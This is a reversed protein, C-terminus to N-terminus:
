YRTEKIQTTYVPMKAKKLARRMKGAARIVKSGNDYFYVKKGRTAKMWKYSATTLNMYVRKHYQPYYRKQYYTRVKPYYRKTSGWQSYNYRFNRFREAKAYERRPYLTAFVSPVPNGQMMQKGRNYWSTLPNLQDPEEIGFLVSLFPNLREKAQGMPDCMIQFFDMVSSGTKVILRSTPDDANNGALYFRINGTLASYMLYDSHKVDDWTYNEQDNYSLELIDMQAKLMDPNKVMGYNIYYMFNNIPFTSFWFFQELLEIGPEKLSYDFHTDIVTRIAKSYDGTEDLMALFLGFRSSKEIMNNAERVKSFIPGDLVNQHYWKEWAYGIFDVNEQNRKLLFEDFSKSLGGSASSNVFMDIMLYTKRESESLNALVRRLNKRNFTKGDALDFVQRQIQDHWELMKMAKYEYKFMDMMGAIGRYSANNKYVASDLWNRMLFGLSNLYMSKFTGVITRRYLNILKSDITDKNITLVMNRYVEHPVLIAGADIANQLDKQNNIYIKYARLKGSNTEKLVVAKYNNRSFLDQLEKDSAKTLIPKFIDNGMFYDDNFFLQAYKNVANGRHISELNGGWVSDLLNTTKTFYNVNNTYLDEKCLDIVTNFATPAGIITFNPRSDNKTHFSNRGSKDMKSYLKQEADDGLAKAISDHKRIVEYATNDMLQGTFLNDPIDMGSWNFANRNKRLMDTIVKQQEPFISRTAYYKYPVDTMKNDTRRIVHIHIDDTLTTRVLGAEALEEDTYRLIYDGVDDVYIFMGDTNHDLWSRLQKTNWKSMSYNFWNVRETYLYKLVEPSNMKAKKTDIGYTRLVALDKRSKIVDKVLREDKKLDDLVKANNLWDISQSIHNTFMHEYQKLSNIDKLNKRFGRDVTEYLAKYYEQPAEEYFNIFKNFDPILDDDVIDDLDNLVAGLDAYYDIRQEYGIVRHKNLVDMKHQYELATHKNFSKKRTVISWALVDDDSLPVIWQGTKEDIYGKFYAEPNKPRIAISEDKYIEALINRMEKMKQPNRYPLDKVKDYAQKYFEHLKIAGGSEGYKIYTNTLLHQQTFELPLDRRFGLFMNATSWAYLNEWESNQQIYEVVKSSEVYSTYAKVPRTDYRSLWRKGLVIKEGGLDTQIADINKYAQRLHKSLTDEALVKTQKDIRDLAKDLKKNLESVNIIHDDDTAESVLEDMSQQAYHILDEDMTGGVLYNIFAETDQITAKDHGLTKLKEVIEKRDLGLASMYAVSEGDLHQYVKPLSLNVRGIDNLERIYNEFAQYVTNRVDEEFEDVLKMPDLRRTEQVIDTPLQKLEDYRLMDIEDLYGNIHLKAELTQLEDALDATTTLNLRDVKDIFYKILQDETDRTFRYMFFDTMEQINAATVSVKRNKYIVNFLMGKIYDKVPQPIDEATVTSNLLRAVANHADIRTLIKEIYIAHQHMNTGTLDRMVKQLTLRVESGADSLEKFLEEIAPDQLELDILGYRGMASVTLRQVEEGINLLDNVQAIKKTTLSSNLFGYLDFVIQKTNSPFSVLVGTKPDVKKLTGKIFGNRYSIIRSQFETLDSKFMALDEFTAKKPKFSLINNILQSTTTDYDSDFGVYRQLEDLDEIKINVGATKFDTLLKKLDKQLTKTNEYSKSVEEIIEDATKPDILSEEHFFKRMSEGNSDLKIKIDPINRQIFKTLNRQEKMISESSPMGLKAFKMEGWMADVDKVQLLNYIEKSNNVTIGLYDLLATAQALAEPNAKHLDRIYLDLKKLGYHKNGIKLYQKDIYEVRELVSYNKFKKNTRAAKDAGKFFTNIDEDLRKIFAATINQEYNALVIADEGLIRVLDKVEATMIGSAADKLAPVKELLQEYFIADLKARDYGAKAYKDIIRKYMNILEEDTIKYDKLIKEFPKWQESHMKRSERAIKKRTVRLDKARNNLIEDVNGKQLNTIYRNWFYKFTPSLAYQYTLYGVATAPTFALSAKLVKNDIYDGTKIAQKAKNYVNYWKSDVVSNYIAEITTKNSALDASRLSAEAAIRKAQKLTTDKLLSQNYSKTTELRNILKTVYDDSSDSVVDAMERAIIRAVDDSLEIGLKQGAEKVVVVMADVSIDAVAKGGLTFWNSPDSIVEGVFDLIVNGTDWQYIERYEDDMWGMSKAFDATTGGGAWPMLSKVPNALIDLSNGLTELTNILAVGPKGEAIPHWFREDMALGAGVIRNLIPVYILFEKDNDKLTERLQKTGTIPNGLIIDGLDKVHRSEPKRYSYRIKLGPANLTPANLTPADLRPANLKPASFSPAGLGHYSTTLPGDNM